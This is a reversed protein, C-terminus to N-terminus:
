DGNKDGFIIPELTVQSALVVKGLAERYSPVQAAPIRIGTFLHKDKLKIVLEYITPIREPGSHSQAKLDAEYLPECHHLEDRTSEVM